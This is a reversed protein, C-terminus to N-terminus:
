ASPASGPRNYSFQAVNDEDVPVQYGRPQIVFVTM